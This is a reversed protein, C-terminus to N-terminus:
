CKFSFWVIFMLTLRQQGDYISIGKNKDSKISFSVTLSQNILVLFSIEFYEFAASSIQGNMSERTNVNENECM